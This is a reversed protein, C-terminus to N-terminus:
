LRHEIALLLDAHELHRLQNGPVQLFLQQCQIGPCKGNPGSGLGTAPAPRHYAVPFGYCAKLRYRM